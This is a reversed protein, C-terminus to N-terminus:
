GFWPLTWIERETEERSLIPFPRWGGHGADLLAQKIQSEDLGKLALSLNIAIAGGQPGGLEMKSAVKGEIRDALVAFAQVNGKAAAKAMALVLLEAWTRREKDEKFRQSALRRAADSIPNRPRGGANGSQGKKFQYPKL